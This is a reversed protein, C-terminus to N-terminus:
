RATASSDESETITQIEFGEAKLARFVGPGRGRDVVLTKGFLNEDLWKQGKPSKARFTWRSSSLELTFVDM